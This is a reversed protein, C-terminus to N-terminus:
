TLGTTGHGIISRNEELITVPEGDGRHFTKFIYEPEDVEGDLEMMLDRLQILFRMGQKNLGDAWVQGAAAMFRLSDYAFCVRAGTELGHCVLLQTMWELAARRQRRSVPFANLPHEDLVGCFRGQLLESRSPAEDTAALLADCYRELESWIAASTPAHGFYAQAFTGAISSLRDELSIKPRGDDCM